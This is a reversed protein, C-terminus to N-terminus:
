EGRHIRADVPETRKCAIHINFNLPFFHLTLNVSSFLDPRHFATEECESSSHILLFHIGNLHLRGAARAHFHM